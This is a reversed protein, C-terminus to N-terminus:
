YALKFIELVDEPELTSLVGFSEGRSANEAIKEIEDEKIGLERLSTPTNIDRFFDELADIAELAKEEDSGDFIDFVEEGLRAFPVPNEEYLYRAWALMVVSLSAGHTVGHLVSLSHGMRHSSFDGRVKRGMSLFGSHAIMGATAYEARLDYDKPNEILEPIVRMMTRIIAYGQADIVESGEQGDLLRELVHAIIDVGGYITQKQPLTFQFSPDIVSVKPYLANSMISVKLESDPNSVVAINNVESSSASATLVGYIPMAKTIKEKGIFFDWVDGSYCSGAAIAKATDFVSGGGVPMIADIGGAKVRAIGDRVKDVLPNAKIDNVEAFTIGAANLMDTTQAYAGSKFTGKGGFVLLVGKVGDAKLRPALDKVTDKGFIVATPNHWMFNQM